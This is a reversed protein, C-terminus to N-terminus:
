SNKCYRSLRLISSSPLLKNSKFVAIVKAGQEAFKIATARGIGRTGGTILVVMNKFM